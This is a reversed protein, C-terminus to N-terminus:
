TVLLSTQLTDGRSPVGRVALRDHVELEIATQGVCGSGVQFFPDLRDQPVDPQHHAVELRHLIAGVVHQLQGAESRHTVGWLLDALRDVEEVPEELQVEDEQTIALVLQDIRRIPAGDSGRGPASEADEGVDLREVNASM